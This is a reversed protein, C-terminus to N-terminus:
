FGICTYQGPAFVYDEMEGSAELHDMELGSRRRVGGAVIWFGM